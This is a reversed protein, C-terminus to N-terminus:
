PPTWDRGDVWWAVYVWVVQAVIFLLVIGIRYWRARPQALIGLAPFLPVLLRFTSSQPYFVALLYLAYSALWFRMDVGLRRAAPTFLAGFFGVTGLGLLVLLMPVPMRFQPAWFDAAQVWPTFPIIPGYGVYPARWALETDTYASPSGTVAAAILLWAVGMLASFLAVAVSAVRERIPFPEGRRQMWWRHAVHMALALAFALGSPRTLSMVAVVPFLLWYRRELLLLQAVVLFFAHMSEAYAVQFIPSLPAFCFLVVAFLATGSPLVMNMLRYFVLAAGLAFAVSVAVSMTQFGVGTVTMLFRVVSPYAPMFAWASEGVQGEPTVPLNVPYGALAIIYYWHGDWITAFNGYNPSAGTWPNLRQLSAFILLITTTVVRSAVFIVIVRAWWPTLRYRVLLARATGTTPRSAPTLTREAM